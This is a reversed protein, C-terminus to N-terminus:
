LNVEGRIDACARLLREIDHDTHGANLTFRVLSHRKPTAPACFVAGFVGRRQLANRLRLTNRETGSELSIIQETGESLAYGLRALERRVLRAMRHLRARRAHATSIFPLAADFWAIEHALLGSSFIAPRSECAFYEKFESSCSIFGARGAFAKALSATRFHVREALGLECVLGRGGPGHTGLSHSEDVVLISGTAEALEVLAPLPAVSGSTSYVSDVAIVGAGHKALRSRAHQVNNHLFPVFRAGAALAGERLSAHAHMDLYVPIDPAALSQLLGVNAAWGSQCIVGDEAGIFHALRREFAHQPSDRHLFASSILLERKNNLLVQAQHQRLASEDLLSLYDNSSFHVADPPPTMDRLPHSGGWANQLRDVYYERLRRAVFDPFRDPAGRRQAGRLQHDLNTMNLKIAATAAM